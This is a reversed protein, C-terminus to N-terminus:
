FGGHFSLLVVSATSPMDLCKLRAGLTTMLRAGHVGDRPLHTVEGVHGHWSWAMRRSSLGRLGVIMVGVAVVCGFCPSQLLCVRLFGDSNSWGDFATSLEIDFCSPAVRYSLLGRMGVVIRSVAFFFFVAINVVQRM